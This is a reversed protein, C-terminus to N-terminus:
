YVNKHTSTNFQQFFNSVSIKLWDNKLGIEEGKHIFCYCIERFFFVLCNRTCKKQSRCM